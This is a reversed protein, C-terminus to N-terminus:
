FYQRLLARVEHLRFANFTNSYQYRVDFDTRGGMRWTFHTNLAGAIRADSNEGRYERTVQGGLRGDFEWFLSAGFWHSMTLTGYNLFYRYPSFYGGLALPDRGAYDSANQDFGATTHAYGIRIYPRYTRLAFGAAAEAAFRDNRELGEGTNAGASLRGSLDLRRSALWVSAGVTGLNAVVVGRLGDADAVGQASRRTEEVLRRSAGFDFRFGDSPQWHGLVEGGWTVPADGEVDRSLVAGRLGFRRDLRYSLGAGWASASFHGASDSFDTYQYGGELRWSAGLALSLRSRGRVADLQETRDQYLGEAELFSGLARTTSDRLLRLYTERGEFGALHRRAEGFRGLELSTHALGQRLGPDGPQIALGRSLVAEAEDFRRLQNLAGGKGRLAGVADPDATLLSDFIPLALAADGRWTLLNAQGERAKVNAPDVQRATRFLEEAEDRTRRDWSLVEGLGALTEPDTGRIALSRRLTAIGQERNGAWAQYLGMQRLRAADDPVLRLYAELSPMAERWRGQADLAEVARLLSDPSQAAASSVVGALLTLLLLRRM